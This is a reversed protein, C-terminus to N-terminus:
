DKSLDPWILADLRQPDHEPDSHEIAAFSLATSVFKRCNLMETRTPARMVSGKDDILGRNHRYVVGLEYAVLGLSRHHASHLKRHDRLAAICSDIAQLVPKWKGQAQASAATLANCTEDDIGSNPVLLHEVSKKRKAKQLAAIVSAPTTAGITATQLKYQALLSEISKTQIDILRRGGLYAELLQVQDRMLPEPKISQELNAPLLPPPYARPM